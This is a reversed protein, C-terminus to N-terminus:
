NMEPCEGKASCVPTMECGMSDKEPPCVWEGAPCSPNCQRYCIATPDNYQCYGPMACGQPDMGGSCFMENQGCNMPCHTPCKPDVPICTDPMPCGAADAGGPCQMMGEGCEMAPMPCNTPCNPDKAICFDSMKCGKPDVDGPCLMEDDSCRVPCHFPCDKSVGFDAPDLCSDGEPCGDLDTGGPCLEAGEGCVRPCQMMAKASCHAYPDVPLCWYATQCGDPGIDGGCRVDAGHCEVPDKPPPPCDGYVFPVLLAVIVLKMKSRISSKFDVLIGMDM